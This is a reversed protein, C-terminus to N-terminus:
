ARKWRAWPEKEQDFVLEHTSTPQRPADHLYNDYIYEAAARGAHDIFWEMEAESRLGLVVIKAPVLGYVLSVNESTKRCCGMPCYANTLDIELYHLTSLHHRLMRGMESWEEDQSEEKFSHAVNLRETSTLGNYDVLSEKWEWHGPGAVVSATRPNYSVSINTLWMSARLSFLWRDMHPLVFKDYQENAGLFPQRLQFFDPLVFLNETAYVAEAEDHISKCARLIRLSPRDYHEWDEFRTENEVSYPEPAFFVKGVVVLYRYVALRLETPLDLFRFTEPHLDKLSPVSDSAPPCKINVAVEAGAPVTFKILHAGISQQQSDPTSDACPGQRDAVVIGQTAMNRAQPEVTSYSLLTSTLDHDHDHSGPLSTYPRFTIGQHPSAPAFSMNGVSWCCNSELSGLVKM